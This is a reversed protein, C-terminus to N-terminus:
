MIANVGTLQGLSVMINAYVFARRARPERVLDMWAYKADVRHQDAREAEISARMDFFEEKDEPNGFGRIRKWVGYAEVARGKHMLYRPSEPLFFMGVLLITSFVVSSGLIFRWNGTVDVFIAAVVYGFVEGLAINFQYLSVLNGRQRSTVSESVYVPVTGGELGVGVGMVLRGTLMMAYNVAGAELAAGVTYLVCSIIISMRRGFSENCPHLILAGLVAGLPM